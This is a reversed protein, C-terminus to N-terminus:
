CVKRRMRTFPLRQFTWPLRQILRLCLATGAAVELSDVLWRRMRHAAPFVGGRLQRGWPTSVQCTWASVVGCSLIRKPSDTRLSWCCGCTSSTSRPPLATRM